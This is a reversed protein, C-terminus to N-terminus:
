LGCSTTRFSDDVLSRHWEESISITILIIFIINFVCGVYSFLKYIYLEITKIALCSVELRPIEFQRTGECRRVLIRYENRMTDM